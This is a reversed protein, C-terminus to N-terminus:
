GSASLLTDVRERASAPEFKAADRLATLRIRGARVMARVSRVLENWDGDTYAPWDRLAELMAIEHYRLGARRPNSRRHFRVGRIGAPPPAITAFEEVAPRQTTLGLDRSASWGSPGIGGRDGLVALVLDAPAPAGKGFRSSTGRWYLGRRVRVLPVRADGALRSLATDAAARSAFGSCLEDARLFTRPPANEIRERLTSAVSTM